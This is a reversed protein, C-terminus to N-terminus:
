LALPPRDLERPPVRGLSLFLPSVVGGQPLTISSKAAAAISATACCATCPGCHVAASADNDAQDHAGHDHASAANGGPGAGHDHALTGGTEHGGLTLCLETAIAAVAQMPIALTLTAVLFLRAQVM